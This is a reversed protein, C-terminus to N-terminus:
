HELASEIGNYFNEVPKTHNFWGLAYGAIGCAVMGAPGLTAGAVACQVALDAPGIDRISGIGAHIASNGLNHYTKEDSKDIFAKRISFAASAVTLASGVGPIKRTFTQVKPFVRKSVNLAKEGHPLRRIFTKINGSTRSVCCKLKEVPRRVVNLTRKAGEAATNRLGACVDGTKRIWAHSNNRFFSSVNNVKAHFSEMWKEDKRKGNIWKFPNKFLSRVDNVMKRLSLVMKVTKKRRIEKIFNSVNDAKHNVVEACRFFGARLKRGAKMNSNGRDKLYKGTTKYPKDHLKIALNKSKRVNRYKRDKLMAKGKLEEQRHRGDRNQRTYSKALKEYEEVRNKLNRHVSGPIERISDHIDFPKCGADIVGAGTTVYGWIRRLTEDRIDDKMSKSTERVNKVFSRDRYLKLARHSKFGEHVADTMEAVKRNQRDISRRIGSYYDRSNFRQMRSRIDDLDRRAARYSEEVGGLGPTKVSVLDKVSNLVGAVERHVEQLRRESSDLRGSLEDLAATDIVATDSHENVEDQFDRGAKAFASVIENGTDRYVEILPIKHNRTEADIAEKVRGSLADSEVIRDCAVKAKELDANIRDNQKKLHNLTEAVESMDVRM